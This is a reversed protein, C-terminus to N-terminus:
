MMALLLISTPMMALLPQIIRPSRTGPPHLLLGYILAHRLEAEDLAACEELSVRFTGDEDWVAPPRAGYTYRESFVVQLDLSRFARHSIALKTALEQIEARLETQTVAAIM